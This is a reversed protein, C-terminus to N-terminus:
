HIEQNLYNLARDVISPDDKLLGIGKNCMTCLLGRVRGTSHCHDIVLKNHKHHRGFEDSLKTGCIACCGGQELFLKEFGEKTLGYKFKRQNDRHKARVTHYHKDHYAKRAKTDCSKCRYSKGDPSAKYNYFDNLLKPQECTTCTKM